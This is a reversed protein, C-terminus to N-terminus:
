KQSMRKNIGKITENRRKVVPDEDVLSYVKSWRKVDPDASSSKGKKKNERNEISNAVAKFYKNANKNEDKVDLDALNAAHSYRDEANLLKGYSAIKNMSHDFDRQAKMAEIERDDKSNYAASKLKGLSVENIYEEVLGMIENFCEESVSLNELSEFIDM